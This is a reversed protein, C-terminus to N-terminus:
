LTKEEPTQASSGLTVKRTAAHCLAPPNQTCENGLFLFYSTGAFTLTQLREYETVIHSIKKM